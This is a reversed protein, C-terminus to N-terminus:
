QGNAAETDSLEDNQAEMISLIEEYAEVDEVGMIYPM